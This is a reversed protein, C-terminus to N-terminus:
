IPQFHSGPSGVLGHPEIIVREEPDDTVHGLVQAARSHGLVSVARDADAASVIACLGIGMNFVQYMEAMDVPGGRAIVEFIAPPDPLDTIRYGVQAKARGLNLFGDSTIHALSKVAPGNDILDMVEDVYIATPELLEEGLSRGLEPLHSDVTLGMTDFLVNRALTLGNSHIGSAAVGIIADGPEIDEGLILSDLSVTGVCTGVLDFGYGPKIGTVMEPLQAVEGGPINIKAQKAGELLGRALDTLLDERAEQVAIYDVMSIPRAGVCIIDNVNMAVCDIGVTDYRECAEAVLIKTGVGDTAIAVGQGGGVDMVSAYFGLDLETPRIKMSKRVASILGEMGANVNTTKVGVSNYTV